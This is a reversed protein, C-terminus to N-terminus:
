EKGFDRMWYASDRFEVCVSHNNEYLCLRPKNPRGPSAPMREIQEQPEPM